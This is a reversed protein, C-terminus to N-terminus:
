YSAAAEKRARRREREALKKKDFLMYLTLGAPGLIVTILMFPFLFYGKKFGDTAIWRGFFLNGIVMHLWAFLPLNEHTFVERVGDISPIILSLWNIEWGFFFLTLFYLSGLLVWYNKHFLLKRTIVSKPLLLLPIWSLILLVSLIRFLHLFM